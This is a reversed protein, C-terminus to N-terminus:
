MNIHKSRLIDQVVRKPKQRRSKNNYHIPYTKNDATYLKM